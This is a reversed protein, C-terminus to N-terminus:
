LDDRYIVTDAHGVHEPLSERAILEQFEEGGFGDLWEIGEEDIRMRVIARPAREDDGILTRVGSGLCAMGVLRLPGRRGPYYTHHHGSLFADVGHRNLLSELAQDGIIENEKTEAFPYLPVHGFVIRVPHDDAELLADLWQMQETPLPGLGTADLSIFLAGEMAFAYNFPYNERDVFEVDPMFELWQEEYIDREQQYSPYASADHNGPTVAFPIGAEWLPQTVAMHFGRWMGRYDLGARQGAVMDGTSLVLDPSLRVVEDIASHVSGNYDLSGYSSNLDSIVVVEFPEFRPAPSVDLIDTGLIDPLGVESADYFDPDENRADELADRMDSIDWETSDSATDDSLDEAVDDPSDEDRADAAPVVSDPPNVTAEAGPVLVTVEGNCSTGSTSLLAASIALLIPPRILMWPVRSLSQAIM